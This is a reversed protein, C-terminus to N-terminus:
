FWKRMTGAIEPPQYDPTIDPHFLELRENEYMTARVRTSNYYGHTSPGIIFNMKILCKMMTKSEGNINWADGMVDTLYQFNSPTKGRPTEAIVIKGTEITMIKEEDFLFLVDLVNLKNDNKTNCKIQRSAHSANEMRHGEKVLNNSMLFYLLRSVYSGDFFIGKLQKQSYRKVDEVPLERLKAITYASIKKGDIEQETYEHPPVEVLKPKNQNCWQVIGIKKITKEMEVVRDHMIKKADKRPKKAKAKKDGDATAITDSSSKLSAAAPATPNSPPDMGDLGSSAAIASRTVRKGSAAAAAAAAPPDMGDLGSSTVSASRTVRTVRKGSTAEAAPISPTPTWNDDDDDDGDGDGISRRDTSQNQRKSSPAHSVQQYDRRPRKEAVFGKGKGSKTNKSSQKTRAM